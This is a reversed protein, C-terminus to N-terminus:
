DLKRGSVFILAGGQDATNWSLVLKGSVLSFSTANGLSQLFDGEMRMVDDACIKRTSGVPGLKVRGAAGELDKMDSFYSNCGANGKVQGDDYALSIQLDEPVPEGNLRTLIWERGGIDEASLRGTLKVPLEKFSGDTERIWTRTAKQAPCCAPDAAGHEILNVIIKNGEIGGGLIQVRDGIFISRSSIRDNELDLILLYNFVGSGGPADWLALVIEEEDDGDLDGRFRFGDILGRTQGVPEELAESAADATGQRADEASVAASCLSVSMGALFLLQLIKPNFIM